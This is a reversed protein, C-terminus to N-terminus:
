EQARSNEFLIKGTGNSDLTEFTLRLNKVKPHEHKLKAGDPLRANRNKLRKTTSITSGLSEKGSERRGRQDGDMGQELLM